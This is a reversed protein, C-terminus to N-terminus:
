EEVVNVWLRLTRYPEPDGDRYLTFHVQQDDGAAPLAYEVPGEWVEGDELAFPGAAGILQDETRVEIRYEAGVGERNAIGATVSVPEGAAM